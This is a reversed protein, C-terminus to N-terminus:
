LDERTPRTSPKTKPWARRHSRYEWSQLGRRIVGHTMQAALYANIEGRKWDLEILTEKMLKALKERETSPSDGKNM